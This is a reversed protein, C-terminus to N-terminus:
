LESDPERLGSVNEAPVVQGGAMVLEVGGAGQRAETVRSYHAVSGVGTLEGGSFSELELNYEGYPLPVGGPGIAAWPFTGSLMPVQERAVEFGFGNRVVLEARDSGPIADIGIDVPRGQFSVPANVRAERGVWGALQALDSAGLAGKLEGLLDNTLVQQEVGSFTALQVAFDQSEIPNLPDQNELQTTLMVLFTEFDSSVVPSRNPAPEASRNAATAALANQSHIEM